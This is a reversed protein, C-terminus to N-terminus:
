AGPVPRSQARRGSPRTISEAVAVAVAGILVALTVIILLLGDNRTPLLFAVAAVTASLRAIDLRLHDRRARLLDRVAAGDLWIAVVLLAVRLIAVVTPGLMGGADRAPGASTDVRDVVDIVWWGGLAVGLGVLYGLLAALTARGDAARGHLVWAILPGLALAIIALEVFVGELGLWALALAVGGALSLTGATLLAADASLVALGAAYLEALTSVGAQPSLAWGDADAVLSDGWLRDALRKVFLFGVVDADQSM